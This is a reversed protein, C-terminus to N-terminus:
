SCPRFRNGGAPRTPHVGGCRAVLPAGRHTSRAHGCGGGWRLVHRKARVSLRPMTAWTSAPLVLRVSLSSWSAPTISSIPLTSSPLVWVSEESRSRRRPMVMRDATTENVTPEPASATVTSRISVGPWGSKM